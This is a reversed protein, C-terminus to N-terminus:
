AHVAEKLQSHSNACEYFKGYKSFSRPYLQAADLAKTLWFPYAGSCKVEMVSADSTLLPIRDEGAFLGVACLHDDFTIRLAEAEDDSGFPTRMCSILVSPYVEGMRARAADIEHAVQIRQQRSESGAFLSLDDYLREGFAVCPAGKLFQHAEHPTVELRRKYVIGKFKKKLEIFASGADQLRDAGYWRVRVKEKYIPKELSRAIVTRERTDLYISSVSTRGFAGMPLHAEIAQQVTERQCADLQYKIEKRNFTVKSM